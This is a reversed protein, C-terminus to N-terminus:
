RRQDSVPEASLLTSILGRGAYYGRYTCGDEFGDLVAQSPVFFRVSGITLEYRIGGGYGLGPASSDVVNGRIRHVRTKAVGTTQQIKGDGLRTLRRRTRLFSLAMVLLFFALVGAVIPVIPVSKDSQQKPIKPLVVVLIVVVFAIAALAMVVNAMLGRSRSKGLRAQQRESARGARNAQLEEETFDLAAGIRAAQRPEM